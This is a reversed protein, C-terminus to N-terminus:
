ERTEKRVWGVWGGWGGWGTVLGGVSGGRWQKQWLYGYGLLFRAVKMQSFGFSYKTLGGLPLQLSVMSGSAKQSYLM